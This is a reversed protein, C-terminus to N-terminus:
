NWSTAPRFVEILILVGYLGVGFCGFTNGSHGSAKSAELTVSFPVATYMITTPLLLLPWRALEVLSASRWARLTM